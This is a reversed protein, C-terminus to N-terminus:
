KKMLRAIYGAISNKMKKNPILKDLVRKNKEFSDSFFSSKEEILKKATKKILLSKVRGM